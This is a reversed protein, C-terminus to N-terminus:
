YLDGKSPMRKRLAGFKRLYRQSGAGKKFFPGRQNEERDHDEGWYLVRNEEAGCQGPGMKGKMKPLAWFGARKEQGRGQTVSRDRGIILWIQGRGM